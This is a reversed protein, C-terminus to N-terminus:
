KAKSDLFGFLDRKVKMSEIIAEVVLDASEVAKGRIDDADAEIHGPPKQSQASPHQPSAAKISFSV